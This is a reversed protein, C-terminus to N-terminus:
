KKKRIKGLTEQLLGMPCMVCWGRHKTIVGIVISIITTIICMSVFITGIAIVSGGSKTIRFILFGIFLVFIGWRFGKKSFLVPVSQKKSFKSIIIDLFAGRPCLNWCWYRVKFISMVALFLMMAIVLYGLLPNFLGGILIIPLLCIMIIQSKKM